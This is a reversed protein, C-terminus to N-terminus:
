LDDCLTGLFTYIGLDKFILRSAVDVDLLSLALRESGHVWTATQKEGSDHVFRVEGTPTAFVDGAADTAVDTLSLLKMSGKKGVFVRYGGGLRDRLRDVYYYTGADDRALLYSARIASPSMIQVRALVTKVRDATVPKLPLDHESGCWRHFSGDAQRQVSGPQLNIVRPAWVTIDWADGDASYGRPIQEYLTTGTGYWIRSDGAKNLVVYTGGQGDELVILKDRFASVDVPKPKPDNALASSACAVVIAVAVVLTSRARM